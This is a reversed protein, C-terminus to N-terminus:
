FSFNSSCAFLVNQPSSEAPGQPRHTTFLFRNLPLLSPGQGPPGTLRITSVCSRGPFHELESSLLLFLCSKWTSGSCCLFIHLLIEYLSLGCGSPSWLISSRGSSSATFGASRESVRKCVRSPFAPHPNVPSPTGTPSCPRYLFGSTPCLLTGPDSAFFHRPQTSICGQFM